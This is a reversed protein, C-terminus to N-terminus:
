DEELINRIDRPTQFRYDSVIKDPNRCGWLALACPVGAAGACEMDYCSDGIYLVERRDAGSKRLYAEMPDAYPKHRPADDACIVISFIPALGFPVFDKEYETKTRSTIIGLCVKKDSLWHLTEQIEPFVRISQAYEKAVTNWQECIEAPSNIQLQRLADEGPIGLAFTLKEPPVTLGCFRRLTESLSRLIMEQTDLLTGDIDFVVHSFKM